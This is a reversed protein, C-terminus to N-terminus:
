YIISYYVYRSFQTLCFHSRARFVGGLQQNASLYKYYQKTNSFIRSIINNNNLANLELEIFNHRFILVFYDYLIKLGIIMRVFDNLKNIMNYGYSNTYLVRIM